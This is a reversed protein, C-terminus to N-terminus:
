WPHDRLDLTRLGPVAIPQHSAVIVIGGAERKEAILSEVMGCGQTDLGNLPEDLLWHDARQLSLRAFGARRRQGTSLFRVPVDALDALGYPELLVPQGDLRAWFALADALPLEADLATRDELYGVTGQWLVDGPPEAPDFSGDRAPKRLGALMQLLSTKGIGNPGVLHLAEGAELTINLGGFLPREGRRCYLNRAVFAAQM